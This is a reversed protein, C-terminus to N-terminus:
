RVVEREAPPTFGLWPALGRAHRAARYFARATARNRRLTWGIGSNRVRRHHDRFSFDGTALAEAAAHGALMGTGIAISIGEGFWPDIGVADGALLVREAGQPLAPDYLPATAGQLADSALEVGRDRLHAAFLAALSADAPWVAGGLGRNLLPDGARISPFEWYYGRLGIAAFRFDFVATGDIARLSRCGPIGTLVELAVFRKAPRGGVLQRRVLSRAGDAGILVRTRYTTDGARVRVGDPQREVRSVREGQRVHVGRKEAERLLAHDFDERRVVRFLDRGRRVAQGGAYAFRITHIRVTPVDIRVGLFGLLRDAERVVGGGCLKERPFTAADILLTRTALAPDRQALQIAAASGAPGGGVIIVDYDGVHRRGLKM